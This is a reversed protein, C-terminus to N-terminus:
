YSQAEQEPYLALGGGSGKQGFSGGRQQGLQRRNALITQLKPALGEPDVGPNALFATLKTLNIGERDLEPGIDALNSRVQQVLQDVDTLDGPMGIGRALQLADKPSYGLGSLRLRAAEYIDYLEKQGTGALFRFMDKPQLAKKGSAKLVENFSDMLGPNQRATQLAFARRGFEEPSVEGRMLLRMRAPTVKLWGGQIEAVDQYQERLAYYNGIAKGLNSVSVIPNGDTLFDNLRGRHVLGPFTQKFRRTRVLASTFETTDWDNRIAKDILLSYGGGLGLGSLLQKVQKALKRRKPPM